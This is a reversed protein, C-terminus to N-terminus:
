LSIRDVAIKSGYQKSVRDVTLEMDIGRDERYKEEMGLGRSGGVPAFGNDM